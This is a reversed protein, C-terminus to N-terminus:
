SVQIESILIPINNISLFVTDKHIGITALKLEKM